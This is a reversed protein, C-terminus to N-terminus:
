TYLNVNTKNKPSKFKNNMNNKIRTLVRSTCVLVEIWRKNVASSKHIVNYATASRVPKIKSLKFKTEKVNKKKIKEATSNEIPKTM